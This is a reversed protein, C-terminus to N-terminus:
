LQIWLYLKKVTRIKAEIGFGSNSKAPIVQPCKPMGKPVNKEDTKIPFARMLTFM